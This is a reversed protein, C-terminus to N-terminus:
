SRCNLCMSSRRSRGRANLCTTYRQFCICRKALGRPIGRSQVPFQVPLLQAAEPHTKAIFLSDNGAAVGLVHSGHTAKRLLQNGLEAVNADIAEAKRYLLAEDHGYHQRLTDIQANTYERGFPVAAEQEAIGAQLWCHSIRTKGTSDLFAQHAFPLGDDIVAVIAKPPTASKQWSSPMINEHYVPVWSADVVPFNVRYRPKVQGAGPTALSTVQHLGSAVQADQPLAATGNQTNLEEFVFPTVCLPDGWVRWLPPIRIALAPTTAPVDCGEMVATFRHSADAAILPFSFPRGLDETFVWREYPGAYRDIRRNQSNTDPM